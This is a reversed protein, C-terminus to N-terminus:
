FILKEQIYKCTYHMAVSTYISGLSVPFKRYRINFKTHTLHLVQGEEVAVFNIIKLCVFPWSTIDFIFISTMISICGKMNFALYHIFVNQWQFVAMILSM